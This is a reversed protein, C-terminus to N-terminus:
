VPDAPRCVGCPQLGRRQHARATAARVAKGSVLPCGERHYKTMQAGSVLRGPGGVRSVATVQGFAAPSPRSEVVSLLLKRYEGVARRGGLIWLAIVVAMAIVDGVAADLWLIGRAPEGSGAAGFWCVSLGAIGAGLCILTALVHSLAWPASGLGSPRSAAMEPGIM